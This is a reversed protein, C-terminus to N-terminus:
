ASPAKLDTIWDDAYGLYDSLQLNRIEAQSFNDSLNTPLDDTFQNFANWIKTTGPIKNKPYIRSQWDRVVSILTEPNNKHCEIDQGSIDGIYKDYDHPETDLILIKRNSYKRGGFKKSGIDLGLEFPMNFRAMEGKSKAQNRSLDHVAFKSKKILKIIEIVRIKDGSVTKSFIPYLELYLLSFILVKFLKSYEKDFPCNIFIYKREPKNPM